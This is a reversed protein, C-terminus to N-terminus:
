RDEIQTVPWRGAQLKSEFWFPGGPIIAAIFGIVFADRSWTKSIGLFLIGVYLLFLTGHIPGMIKVMLDNSALYKLPVAVGMLLITSCGEIYGVM